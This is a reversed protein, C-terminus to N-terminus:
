MKNGLLADLCLCSIFKQCFWLKEALNRQQKLTALGELFIHIMRNGLSADLSSCSIFAGCDCSKLWVTPKNSIFLSMYLIPLEQIPRAFLSIVM